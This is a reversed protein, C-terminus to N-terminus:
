DSGLTYWLMKYHITGRAPIASLAPWWDSTARAHAVCVHAIESVRLGLSSGDTPPVDKEEAAKRRAEAPKRQCLRGRKVEASRGGSKRRPLSSM